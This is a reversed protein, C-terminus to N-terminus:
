RKYEFFPAPVLINNTQRSVTGAESYRRRYDLWRPDSLMKERKEARDAMSEFAWIQHIANIEGVETMAYLVPSGFYEAQVPYAFDKVVSLYERPKGPLTICVRHDFIM